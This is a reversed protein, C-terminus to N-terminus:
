RVLSVKRTQERGDAILQAFYVGSPVNDGDDNRGDWEVPNEGTLLTGDFVGRVRRGSVDFIALTARGPSTLRIAFRTGSRGPNPENPGLPGGAFVLPPCTTAGPAADLADLARALLATRDAADAVGELGFALFVTNPQTGCSRVGAAHATADYELFAIGGPAAAVGDPSSQNGAGDGGAIEFALGAGISDDASGTVRTAGAADAGYSAHFTSALWACAADSRTASAPDCLDRAVNQGSLLVAGGGALYASIAARDADDLAPAAEGTEWIVRPFRALAAPDPAAGERPWRGAVKGEALAGAYYTEYDAGGDDDIVLADIDDTIGTFTRTVSQTTDSLSTVTFAVHGSGATQGTQFWTSVKLTDHAAVSPARINLSPISNVFPAYCLTKICISAAWGDPLEEVKSIRFEVAADENNKLVNVIKILGGLTDVVVPNYSVLEFGAASASSPAFAPAVFAAAALVLTAGAISV